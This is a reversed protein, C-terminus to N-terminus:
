GKNKKEFNKHGPLECNLMWNVGFKDTLMGFYSEWFTRALPMKIKGGESLAIFIRTAEETTDTNVSITFNNGKKFDKSWDGGVDSGMLVTEKSIPLSIHMIKEGLEEPIPDSGESPPM